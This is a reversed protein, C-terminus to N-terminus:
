ESLTVLQYRQQSSTIWGGCITEDPDVRSIVFKRMRTTLELLHDLSRYTRHEAEVKGDVLWIKRSTFHDRTEAKQEAPPPERLVMCSLVFTQVSIFRFRKSLMM